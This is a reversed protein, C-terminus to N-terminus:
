NFTGPKKKPFQTLLCRNNCRASRKRTGFAYTKLVSPFVIVRPWMRELLVRRVICIRYNFIREKSGEPYQRPYVKMLNEASSFYIFIYRKERGNLPVPQPLYLIKTELKKYPVTNTFAGSNPIRGQCGADVCV